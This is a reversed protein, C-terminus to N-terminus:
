PSTNPAPSYFLNVLNDVEHMKQDVGIQGSGTVLDCELMVVRQWVYGRDAGPFEQLAQQLVARYTSGVDGGATAHRKFLREVAEDLGGASLARPTGAAGLQM